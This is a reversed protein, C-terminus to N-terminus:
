SSSASIPRWSSVNGDNSPGDAFITTDNALDHAYSLQALNSLHIYNVCARGWDDHHIM